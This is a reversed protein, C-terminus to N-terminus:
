AAIRESTESEVGHLIALPLMSLLVGYDSSKLIWAFAGRAEALDIRDWDMNAFLIVPTEPWATRCQRLLDLGDLFPIHDGTVLADFHRRQMEYLAQVSDQAQVVVFGNNELVHGIRRRLPEVDDVLLVRNGYGIM